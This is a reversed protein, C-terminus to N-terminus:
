YLGATNVFVLALDADEEELNHKRNDHMNFM